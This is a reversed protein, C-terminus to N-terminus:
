KEYPHERGKGVGNRAHIKSHHHKCLSMLNKDSNDGGESLPVIHHVHEVPVLRIEKLCLECYPHTGAYAKRVKEWEKGYLKKTNPDRGYREYDRNVKKLHEECYQEGDVALRMCWGYACGRRPRRPM